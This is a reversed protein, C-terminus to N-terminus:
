LLFLFRLCYTKGIHDGEKALHNPIKSFFFSNLLWVRSLEKMSITEDGRNFLTSKLNQFVRNELWHLWYKDINVREILENTISVLDM